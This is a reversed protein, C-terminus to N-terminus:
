QVAFCSEAATNNGATTRVIIEFKFEDGLDTGATPSSSPSLRRCIV